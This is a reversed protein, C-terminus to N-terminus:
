VVAATEQAATEDLLETFLAILEPAPQTGHHSRYYRVFLDQPSLHPLAPPESEAEDRDYELRVDISGAVTDRVRQALGPEPREVDLVVRVHADSSAKAQAAVADLTGRLEVLPRGAALPVARHRAPRGPEVDVIRVVKQQGREGFDLQLLSGAYAAAGNPANVVDQPQHIHGLAMYQPTAPLSQATVGYSQGIHLLRESGDVAAIQAEDVFIHGALINVADPEFGRCVARYIEAARDAYTALQEGPDLALLQEADVLRGENIWPIAAVRARHEAGLLTIVGGRDPPLVRAQTYIGILDSLRGLAELRRASDHNGALLLVQIGLEACGRLTEYLLREAEPSPRASDFIDGCVLMAEVREARAIEVVEALVAEFEDSRDRGRLKRGLHWDATHLFRM